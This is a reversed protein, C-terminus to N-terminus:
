LWQQRSLTAADVWRWGMDDDWDLALNEGSGQSAEVFNEKVADKPEILQLTQNSHQFDVSGRPGEQTLEKLRRFAGENAEKIDDSLPPPSEFDGNLDERYPVYAKLHFSRLLSVTGARRSAIMEAFAPLLGEYSNLGLSIDVLNPLLTDSQTLAETLEPFDDDHSEWHLSTLSPLERLMAITGAASVTAPISSWLNIHLSELSFGSRRTLDTLAPLVHTNADASLKFDKLAPVLLPAFLNVLSHLTTASGLQNNDGGTSIWAIDLTHLSPLLLLRSPLPGFAPGLNMFLHTLNCTQSLISFLQTPLITRTDYEERFEVRSLQSWPINSLTSHILESYSHVTLNRLSTPHHPHPFLPQLSPYLEADEPPLRVSLTEITDCHRHLLETAGAWYSDEGCGLSPWIMLNLPVAAARNLWMDYFDLPLTGTDTYHLESWLTPTQLAVTRWTSCVRLINLLATMEANLPGWSFSQPSPVACQQFIESLVDPLLTQARSPALKGHYSALESTERSQQSELEALMRELQSHSSVSDIQRRLKEIGDAMRQKRTSFPGQNALDDRLKQLKQHNADSDLHRRVEIIKAVLRPANIDLEHYRSQATEFELSPPAHAASMVLDHFPPCSYRSFCQQVSKKYSGNLQSAKDSGIDSINGDKSSMNSRNRYGEPMQRRDSIASSM